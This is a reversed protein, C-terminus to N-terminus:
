GAGEKGRPLLSVPQRPIGQRDPETDGGATGPDPGTGHPPTGPPPSEAPAHTPAVCVEASGRGVVLHGPGTHAHVRLGALLGPAERLCRLVVLQHRWGPRPLPLCPPSQALQFLSIGKSFCRPCWSPQTPVTIATHATPHHGPSDWPLLTSLQSQVFQGKGAGRPGRPPVPIHEADGDGRLGPTPSKRHSRSLSSNSAQAPQCRDRPM